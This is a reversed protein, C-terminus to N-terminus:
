PLYDGPLLAYPRELAGRVEDLAPVFQETWRLYDAAAMTVKVDTLWVRFRGANDNTEIQLRGINTALDPPFFKELDAAQPVTAAALEIKVPALHDLPVQSFEFGSAGNVTRGLSKLMLSQVQKPAELDDFKVALENPGADPTAAKPPAVEVLGVLLRNTKNDDYRPFAQDYVIRLWTCQALANSNADGQAKKFRLLINTDATFFKSRGARSSLCSSRTGTWWVVGKAAM